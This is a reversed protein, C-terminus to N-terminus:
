NAVNACSILLVFGVALSMIWMMTVLGKRWNDALGVVSATWDKLQAPNDQRLRAYIAAIEADAQQKTVGPKLRAAISLNHDGRERAEEPKIAAPIFFDSLEPWRFNAPMVGVITRTRGNLRLTRGLVDPTGGYRRRWIRDSIM